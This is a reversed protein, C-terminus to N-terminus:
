KKSTILGAASYIAKLQELNPAKDNISNIHISNEITDGTRYDQERRSAWAHPTTLPEQSLETYDRLTDILGDYDMEVNKQSDVPEAEPAYDEEDNEPAAYLVTHMNVLFKADELDEVSYLENFREQLKPADPHEDMRDRLGKIKPDMRQRLGQIFPDKAEEARAKQEEEPTGMAALKNAIKLLEQALDRNNM